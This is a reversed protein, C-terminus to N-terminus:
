THLNQRYFRVEKKLYFAFEEGTKSKIKLNLIYITDLWSPLIINSIYHRKLLM